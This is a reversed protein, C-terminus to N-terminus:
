LTGQTYVTFSGCDLGTTVVVCSINESTGTLVPAAITQTTAVPNAFYDSHCGGLCPGDQADVGFYTYTFPGYHNGSGDSWTLSHVGDDWCYFLGLYETCAASMTVTKAIWGSVPAVTEIKTYVTLTITEPASSPSASPQPQPDNSSVTIETPVPTANALPTSTAEPVASEPKADLSDAPAEGCGSICIVLLLTNLTNLINM